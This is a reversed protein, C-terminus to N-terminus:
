CAGFCSVEFQAIAIGIRAETLTMGSKVADNLIKRIKKENAQEKTAM